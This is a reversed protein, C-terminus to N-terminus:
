GVLALSNMLELSEESIKKFYKMLTESLDNNEVLKIRLWRSLIFKNIRLFKKCDKVFVNKFYNGFYAGLGLSMISILGITFQGASAFDMNASFFGFVASVFLGSFFTFRYYVAPKKVNLNKFGYHNFLIMHILNFSQLKRSIVLDLSTRCNEIKFSPFNNNISFSNNRNNNNKNYSNDDFHNKTSQRANNRYSNFDSYQTKEYSDSGKGKFIRNLGYYQNVIMEMSKATNEQIYNSLINISNINAKEFDYFNDGLLNLERYEKCFNENRLVDFFKGNKDEESYDVGCEVDNETINLGGLYSNVESSYTKLFDEITKEIVSNLNDITEVIEERKAQIFNFNSFDSDDILTKYLLCKFILHSQIVNQKAVLEGKLADFLRQEFKDMKSNTLFDADLNEIYIEEFEYKSILKNNEASYKENVKEVLKKNIHRMFKTFYSKKKSEDEGFLTEDGGLLPNSNVNDVIKAAKDKQGKRMDEYEAKLREYAASIEGRLIREIKDRLPHPIHYSRPDKKVILKALFLLKDEYCNEFNIFFIETNLNNLLSELNKQSTSKFMNYTNKEEPFILLLKKHALVSKLFANNLIANFLDIERDYEEGFVYLIVDHNFLMFLFKMLTDFNNEQTQFSNNIFEKLDESNLLQKEQKNLYQSHKEIESKLSGFKSADESYLPPISFILQDSVFNNEDLNESFIIKKRCFFKKIKTNFIYNYFASDSSYAQNFGMLKQEYHFLNKEDNKFINFCNSDFDAKEAFLTNVIKQLKENISFAGLSFEYNSNLFDEIQKIDKEILNKLNKYKDHASSYNSHESSILSKAEFVLTGFDDKLFQFKIDTQNHTTSSNAGM